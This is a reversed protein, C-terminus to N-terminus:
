CLAYAFPIGLKARLRDNGGGLLEHHPPQRVSLNSHRLFRLTKLQRRFVDGSVATHTWTHTHTWKHSSQSVRHM